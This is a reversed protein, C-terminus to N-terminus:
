ELEMYIKKFEALYQQSIKKFEEQVYSKIVRIGYINEQVRGSIASFNEQVKRFQKQVLRGIKLMFFVIFPIPILIILTLKFNIITSMSYISISCLIIINIIMATAPGLTMRVASIDNIAYAILDGTKKQNYFEPSLKQFHNFLRARIYCELNRANVVILNRWVYTTIFTGVAILLIYVIKIKVLVFNFDNTKLIDIINGLVRPFFSQIYSTSMMFIIGIIYSTKHKKIFGIIINKGM